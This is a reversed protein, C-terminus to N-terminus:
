HAINPEKSSSIKGFVGLGMTCGDIEKDLRFLVLDNKRVTTYANKTGHILLRLEGYLATHSRFLFPRNSSLLSHLPQLHFVLALLVILLNKYNTHTDMKRSFKHSLVSV